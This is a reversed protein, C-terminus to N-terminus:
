SQELTLLAQTALDEKGRRFRIEIGQESHIRWEWDFGQRGVNSELWLEWTNDLEEYFGIKTTPFIHFKPWQLLITRGTMFMWWFTSWVQIAVPDRHLRIATNSKPGMLWGGSYDWDFWNQLMKELMPYFKLM